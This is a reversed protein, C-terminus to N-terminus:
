KGSFGTLSHRKKAALNTEEGLPDFARRPISKPDLSVPMKYFTQQGSNCYFLTNNQTWLGNIGYAAYETKNPDGAM